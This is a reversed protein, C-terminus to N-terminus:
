YSGEPFSSRIHSFSEFAKGQSLSEIGVIFCKLTNLGQEAEIWSLPKKGSEMTFVDIKSTSFKDLEEEWVLKIPTPCLVLLGDIQDAQHRANALVTGIYSKGLGMEYFFAFETKDWAKNMGVHQHEMPPLDVPHPFQKM